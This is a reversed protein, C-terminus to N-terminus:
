ENIGIEKMLELLKKKGRELHKRVTAYNKNLEDAIQCLSHNHVLSLILVRRYNDPIKRIAKALKKMNDTNVVNKYVNDESPVNICDDLNLVKSERKKKRWEDIAANEAITYVYSKLMAPNDTEISSINRAISLLASQLAEEATLNDGVIKLIVRRMMKEHEGVIRDFKICDDESKILLYYLYFM